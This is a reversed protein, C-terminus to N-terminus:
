PVPSLRNLFNSIHSDVVKLPKCGPEELQIRGSENDISLFYESDEETTAFFVTFGHHARKKALAHGILNEVLRDFDADNWLQILSVRGEESRFNITGSYFSNYYSKIDAHLTLELAHELGSFDLSKQM